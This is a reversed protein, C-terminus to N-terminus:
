LRDAPSFQQHAGRARERARIKGYRRMVVDSSWGGLTKLDGEQGGSELWMDAFTHRFQHPHIHPIGTQVCRDDFLEYLSNKQLQGNRTLWLCRLEAHPHQERTLLYLDLAKATKKGFFVVRPKRGKGNRILISRDRLDVDELTLAALEMRRLGTDLLVLFMAKDRRDRFSTGSVAKLLQFLHEKTILETTQETTKPVTLRAMPDEALLEMEVLYRFFLRLAIFYSATTAAAKERALMALWRQITEQDQQIASPLEHDDLWQIFNQIAHRYLRVTETSKNEAELHLTFSELLRSLSQSNKQM